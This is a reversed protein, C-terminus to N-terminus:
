GRGPRPLRLIHRGPGIMWLSLFVVGSEIAHSAKVFGDGRDIHMAAAVVMTSLLLGCAPRFVLGLALLLGGGFESFAAMFGWFVPAFDVGFVEMAKGLRAWKDAGGALKPFGHVMFSAGIGVRLILLGIDRNM